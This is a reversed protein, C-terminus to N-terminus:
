REHGRPGQRRCAGAREDPRELGGLLSLLTSKGSGSPGMVAVMEAASVSLDVGRLARVEVAGPYTRTLASASLLPENDPM